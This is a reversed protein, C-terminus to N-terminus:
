VDLGILRMLDLGNSRTVVGERLIYDFHLRDGSIRDEFHVNRIHETGPGTMATLALDHTSLLGIAGLALLERILGTAGALRDRSNTGALLEDLLFLVPPHERALDCIARLRLIEAYFRSRGSQLSDNIQISAGVHLPSLRLGHARVPAGAMAMVTSVGVSRLLTSKGSMNSGSVLLLRATADLTLSNRVCTADPLLPHGLAEAAFVLQGEVLEPFGDAPHEFHYASLSLLAELDGLATLWAALAHGHAKRWSQILVALQVSYLLPIDLLRLLGNRLVDARTLRAMRRLAASACFSQERLPRQAQQLRPANFSERELRGFLEALLGLRRSAQKADTFIPNLKRRLWYTLRADLALMVVLPIPSHARIWWALSALTLLALLPATWGIWAPIADQPSEAWNVLAERDLELRSPGPTGALAERLATRDRLDSIAAQRALIEDGSAPALLWSALTDEGISTRADCLLEFLGAPGFLDLDVAYLSRSIDVPTRRPHVGPWRDEVRALGHECWAVTLEARTGAALVQSHFHATVIFAAWPLLLWEWHLARFLAFWAIVIMAAAWLLRLYGLLLHQRRRHRIEGQCAERRTAYFAAASPVSSPPSQHM